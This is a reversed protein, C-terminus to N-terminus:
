IMVVANMIWRRNKVSYSVSGNYRKVTRVINRIGYGHGYRTNIINPDGLVELDDIYTIEIDDDINCNNMTTISLLNLKCTISLEISNQTTNAKKESNIANDIMNGVIVVLDYPEIPINEPILLKCNFDYGLNCIEKHKGNLIADLEVNGTDYVNKYRDLKENIDGIYKLSKEKENNSIMSNLVSLHNKLDHRISRASEDSMRILAAQNYYFDSFNRLEQEEWVVKKMANLKEIISFLIIGMMMTIVALEMTNLELFFPLCNLLAVFLIISILTIISYRDKNKLINIGKITIYLVINYISYIVLNESNNFLLFSVVMSIIFATLYGVMRPLETKESMVFVTITFVIDYGVIVILWFRYNTVLINASIAVGIAYLLIVRVKNDYGSIAKIQM